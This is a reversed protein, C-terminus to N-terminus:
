KGKKKMNMFVDIKKEKNVMGNATGLVGKIYRPHVDYNILVLSKDNHEYRKEMDAWVPSMDHSQQHMYRDYLPHDPIEILIATYSEEIPQVRSFVKPGVENMDWYTKYDIDTLLENRPKGWMDWYVFHNFFKEEADDYAFSFVLGREIAYESGYDKKMLDEYHTLLPKSRIIGYKLISNLSRTKTVHVAKM